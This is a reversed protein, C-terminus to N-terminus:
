SVGALEVGVLINKDNVVRLWGGQAVVGWIVLGLPDPAAMDITGLGISRYPIEQTGVNM